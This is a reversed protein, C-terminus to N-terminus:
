ADIESSPKSGCKPKKTKPPSGSEAERSAADFDLELNRKVKGKQGPDSTGTQQQQHLVRKAANAALKMPSAKAHKKEKKKTEKQQKPEKGCEEDEESPNEQRSTKRTKPMKKPKDAEETEDQVQDEEEDEKSVQKAEEAVKGDKKEAGRGRSRGRGRGRGRGKSRKEKEESDEEAERLARDEDEHEETEDEKLSKMIKRQAAIIDDNTTLRLASHTKQMAEMIQSAREEQARTLFKEEKVLPGKTDKFTGAGADEEEELKEEESDIVVAPEEKQGSSKAQGQSEDVKKAAKGPNKQQRPEKVKGGPEDVKESADEKMKKEMSQGKPM